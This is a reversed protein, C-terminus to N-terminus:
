GVTIGQAHGFRELDIFALKTEENGARSRFRSVFPFSGPFSRSVFDQKRPSYPFSATSSDSSVFPMFFLDRKRQSYAVTKRVEKV